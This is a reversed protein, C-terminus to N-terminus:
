DLDMVVVMDLQRAHGPAEYACIGVHSTGIAWARM